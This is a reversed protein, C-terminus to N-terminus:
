CYVFIKFDDCANIPFIDFLDITEYDIQDHMSKFCKLLTDALLRKIMNNWNFKSVNIRESSSALIDERTTSLFFNGNVHFKFKTKKNLPLFCFAVGTENCANTGSMTFKETDALKNIKISISTCPYYKQCDADNEFEKQRPYCVLTQLWYSDDSYSCQDDKFKATTVKQIFSIVIEQKNEGLELRKSAIKLLSSQEILLKEREDNTFYKINLLMDHNMIFKEPSKNIEFILHMNSPAENDNLVFLKLNCINQCFLIICNSYEHLISIIKEVREKTYLTSSIESAETRFPLRFLTGPFGNCSNDEFINYGFMDNYPKFQDEFENIFDKEKLDIIIGPEYSSMWDHPLYKLNPDFMVLNNESLISPVDTINYVSNFGLGFKGITDNRKNKERGGLRIISKYDNETFVANNYVWLANGQIKNLKEHFLSTNWNKNERLDLCICIESANADDANQLLEKFVELGDCYGEILDRIRNVLRESQGFPRLASIKKMM